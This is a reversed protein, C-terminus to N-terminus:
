GRGHDYELFECSWYRSGRWFRLEMKHGGGGILVTEEGQIIEVGAIKQVMSFVLKNISCGKVTRLGKRM